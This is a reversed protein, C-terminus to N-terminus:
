ARRERTFYDLNALLEAGRQFVIENFGARRFILAAQQPLSRIARIRGRDRGMERRLRPLALPVPFDSGFLLKFHLDQARAVSRLFDVKGWVTLASIDAYLPADAFEGRLAELLLRHSRREGFPTVPTAVHAVIVTPMRRERRLAHLAELLPALPRLELQQTRLTFEESYHVLLPLGLEACRAMFRRTRPDHVDINQHLPIWKVLCAGAAHVEDLAALAEPRYPHISAGFLFREPHQRCLWRALSNSTYIDSGLSLRYRPLVTRDGAPTHYHDFALLVFRDIPGDTSLLHQEYFRELRGDLEDGPRSPGDLGALWRMGLWPLSHAFRPSVCSDYRDPHTPDAAAASERPPVPEFSFRPIADSRQRSTLTYHCHVDIIM